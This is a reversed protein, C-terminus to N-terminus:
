VPAQIAAAADEGLARVIDHRAAEVLAAFASAPEAHQLTCGGCLGFVPCPPTRRDPSPRLVEFVEAEAHRKHERTVRAVVSEGPLAGAVFVAMGDARRAVGAGGHALGRIDLTETASLAFLDAPLRAPGGVLRAPR